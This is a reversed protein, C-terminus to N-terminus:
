AHRRGVVGQQLQVDPVNSDPDQQVVGVRRRIERLHARDVPTGGIRVPPSALLAGNLHARLTSKGAGNPGVLALRERAGIELWRVVLEEIVVAATLGAM